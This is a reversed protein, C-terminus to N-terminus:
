ATPTLVIPSADQRRVLDLARKGADEASVGTALWEHVKRALGVEVIREGAGTAAAAGHPGAFLGAGLIPVDGVRGRLTLATGGTSLAVGFRGDSARVAVGVTDSGADLPSGAVGSPAFEPPREFNWRARWDFSRWEAPISPDHALLKQQLERTKDRMATTLPDYE